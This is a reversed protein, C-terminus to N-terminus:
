CASSEPRVRTSEDAFSTDSAIGYPLEFEARPGIAIHLNSERFSADDSGISPDPFAREMQISERDVPDDPVPEQEELFVFGFPLVRPVPDDNINIEIASLIAESLGTSTSCVVALSNRIDSTTM